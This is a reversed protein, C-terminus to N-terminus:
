ARPPRRTPLGWALRDRRGARAVLVVTRGARQLEAAITVGVAGAGVIIYRRENSKMPLTSEM